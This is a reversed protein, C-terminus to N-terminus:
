ILREGLQGTDISAVLDLREVMSKVPQPYGPTVANDSSDQGQRDLKHVDVPFQKQQLESKPSNTLTFYTLPQM